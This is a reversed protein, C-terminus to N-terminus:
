DCYMRITSAISLGISRNVPVAVTVTLTISTCSEMGMKVCTEIEVETLSFALRPDTTVEIVTLITKKRVLIKTIKEIKQPHKVIIFPLEQILCAGAELLYFKSFHIKLYQQFIQRFCSSSKTQSLSTLKRLKDSKPM